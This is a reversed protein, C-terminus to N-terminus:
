LEAKEKGKKRGKKKDKKLPKGDWDVMMILEKPYKKLINNVLKDEKGKYKERVTKLEEDTKRKDEPLKDYLEKLTHMVREDLQYGHLCDCDERQGRLFPDCGFLQAGMTIMSASSMCDKDKGCGRKMCKHFQDDCYDRSIGCVTKNQM